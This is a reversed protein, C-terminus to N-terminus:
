GLGGGPVPALQWRLCGLMHWAQSVPAEESLLPQGNLTVEDALWTHVNWRAWFDGIAM